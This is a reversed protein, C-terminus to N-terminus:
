PRGQPTEPVSGLDLLHFSALGSHQENVKSIHTDEGGVFCMGSCTNHNAAYTHYRSVSTVANATHHHTHTHKYICHIHAETYAKAFAGPQEM